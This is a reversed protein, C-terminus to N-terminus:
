HLNRFLKSFRKRLAYQSFNKVVYDHGNNNPHYNDIVDRLIRKLEKIDDHHSVHIVYPFPYTWIVQLKYYLSELVSLSLGDHKTLRLFCRARLYMDQMGEFTLRPKFLLNSFPSKPLQRSNEVDPMVVMFTYEPLEKALKLIHRGGYFNFKRKPVYSLFDIDKKNENPTKMKEINLTSLPFYVADIGQSRLDRVLWPSSALNLIRNGRIKEILQISLKVVKDIINQPSTLYFVDSGIWHFILYIRNNIWIQPIKLLSLSFPFVCYLVDIEKNFGINRGNVDILEVIELDKMLEKLLSVHYPAGIVACKIKRM